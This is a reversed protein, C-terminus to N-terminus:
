GKPVNWLAANGEFLRGAKSRRSSKAEKRVFYIIECQIMKIAQPCKWIAAPKVQLEKGMGAKYQSMINESIVIKHGLYAESRM